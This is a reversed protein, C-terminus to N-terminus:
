GVVEVCITTGPRKEPGGIAQRKRKPVARRGQRKHRERSAASTRQGTGGFLFNDVTCFSPKAPLFRPQLSGWRLGRGYELVGM